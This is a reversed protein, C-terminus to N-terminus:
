LEIKIFSSGCDLVVKSAPSSHIQITCDNYLIYYDQNPRKVLVGFKLTRYKINRNPWELEKLAHDKWENSFFVFKEFKAGTKDIANQKLSTKPFNEEIKKVVDNDIAYTKPMPQPANKENSFKALEDANEKSFYECVNYASPPNQPTKNAAKLENFMKWLETEIAIIEGSVKPFEVDNCQITGSTYSPTSLNLRVLLRAKDYFDKKQEYTTQKKAYEINQSIERYIAIGRESTKESGSRSESVSTSQSTAPTAAQTATEAPQSVAEIAQTAKETVMETAKSTANEVAQEAKKEAAKTVEKKASDAAKKLMGGLQAQAGFTTVALCIAIAVVKMLINTKTM